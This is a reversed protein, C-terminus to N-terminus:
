INKKKLCFVSYSVSVHSSNLRTSKRDKWRALIEYGIGGRVGSMFYKRAPIGPPYNATDDCLINIPKVLTALTSRVSRFLTTYPFLSALASVQPMNSSLLACFWVGYWLGY